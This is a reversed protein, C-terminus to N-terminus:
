VTAAVVLLNQLVVATGIGIVALFWVQWGPVREVVDRCALLVVGVYLVVAGKLVIVFLPEHVLLTRIWPNVEASVSGVSAMAVLTSLADAFGWIIVLSFVLEVYGPPEIAISQYGPAM